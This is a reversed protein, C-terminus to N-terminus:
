GRGAGDSRGRLLLDIAGPGPLEQAGVKGAVAAVPRPTDGPQVAARKRLRRLITTLGIKTIPIGDKTLAEAIEAVSAGRAAARKIEPLLEVVRAAKSRKDALALEELHTM